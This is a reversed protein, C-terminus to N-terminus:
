DYGAGYDVEESVGFENYLEEAKKVDISFCQSRFRTKNADALVTDIKKKFTFGMKTLRNQAKTLATDNNKFIMKFDSFLLFVSKSNFRKWVLKGDNVTDVMAGMIKSMEEDVVADLVSSFNNYLFDKYPDNIARDDPTVPSDIERRLFFQKLQWGFQDRDEEM